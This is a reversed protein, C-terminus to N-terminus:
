ESTCKFTQFWQRLVSKSWAAVAESGPSASSVASIVPRTVEMAGDSNAMTPQPANLSHPRSAREAYECVEGVVNPRLRDGSRGMSQRLSSARRFFLPSPPM